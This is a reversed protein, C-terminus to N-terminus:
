DLPQLWLPATPGCFSSPLGLLSRHCDREFRTASSLCIAPRISALFGSSLSRGAAEFGHGVIEPGCLKRTAPPNAAVSDGSCVGSLWSPPLHHYEKSPDDPM